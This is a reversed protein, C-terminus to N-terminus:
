RGRSRRSCPTSRRKVRCAGGQIVQWLPLLAAAQEPTIAQGTGELLLTGLALQDSVGLADSYSTDIAMDGDTNGGGTDAVAPAAEEEGVVAAPTAAAQAGCGSMTVALILALGAVWLASGVYWSRVMSKRKM